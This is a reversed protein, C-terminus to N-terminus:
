TLSERASKVVNLVTQVVEEIGEQPSPEIWNLQMQNRFWTRQRRAFQWTKLKVSAITGPLTSRGELHEVVQRYGLAQLATPNDRLGRCLLGETERVLGFAFMQDVRTDIRARLDDPSRSIGFALPLPTSNRRSKFESFPRGTLRIVEIARVVRRRNSRDIVAFAAPDRRKLEEVLQALPARELEARLSPDAPPANELGHLLADFYFGTGGCLIPLRGRSRIQSISDSALRAFQAADFAQSVEVVDILHHPVSARDSVSPKATGIDMGRYVQMADVSVIEGQLEGALRLAAESKGTATPGALILLTEPRTPRNM